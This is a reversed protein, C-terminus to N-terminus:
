GHQKTERHTLRYLEDIQNYIGDAMGRIMDVDYRKSFSWNRPSDVCLYGRIAQQSHLNPDLPVIPVTISSKYPLPWRFHRLLFGIVWVKPKNWDAPLRTNKYSKAWPLFRQFLFPEVHTQRMRSYILAYGSNEEIWHDTPDAPEYKRHKSASRPDRVLTLVVARGGKESLFKICVAVPGYNINTLAQAFYDCM